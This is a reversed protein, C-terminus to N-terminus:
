VSHSSPLSIPPLPSPILLLSPPPPSLFSLSLPPFSFSPSPPPYYIPESIHLNRITVYTSLALPYSLDPWSCERDPCNQTNCNRFETSRGVCTNGNQCSRRRSQRGGGCTVSCGSWTTWTGWTAAVLCCFLICRSSTYINTPTLNYPKWWLLIIVKTFSWMYVYAPM